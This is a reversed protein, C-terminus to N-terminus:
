SLNIGLKNLKSVFEERERKNELVSEIRNYMNDISCDFHNDFFYVSSQDTISNIYTNILEIEKNSFTVSNLIYDEFAECALPCIPKILKYIADAYERIELQAHADLRLKLFHFLNHLDVKAYCQVYQSFPLNIRALERRMGLNLKDEYKSYIEKQEQSIAEGWSSFRNDYDKGPYNIVKYSGGQKNSKSQETVNEESPVYYEEKAQSYRLSEFNFSFTRHRVLQDRVFCPLKIHFKFETSELPSTHRNRVLYRILGRDESRTKTGAGYSVRAMQVIAADGGMYDVLRVFGKDLVQYSDIESNKNENNPISM